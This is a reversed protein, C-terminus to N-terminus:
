KIKDLLEIFAPLYEGFAHMMECLNDEYVEDELIKKRLHEPFDTLVMRFGPTNREQLYLAKRSDSTIYIEIVCDDSEFCAIRKDKKAYYSEIIMRNGGNNISM